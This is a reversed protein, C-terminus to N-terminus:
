RLDLGFIRKITMYPHSVISFMLSVSFVLRPITERHNQVKLFTRVSTPHPYPPPYPYVTGHDSGKRM